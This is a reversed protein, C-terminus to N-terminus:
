LRQHKRISRMSERDVRWFAPNGFSCVHRDIVKNVARFGVISDLSGNRLSRNLYSYLTLRYNQFLLKRMSTLVPVLIEQEDASSEARENSAPVIGSSCDEQEPESQNQLDTVFDNVM